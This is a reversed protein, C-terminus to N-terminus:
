QVWQPIKRELSLTYLNMIQTVEGMGLNPGGTINVILNDAKFLKCPLANPLTDPELAKTAADEGSGISYVLYHREEM